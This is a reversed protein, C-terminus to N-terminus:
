WQMASAPPEKPEPRLSNFDVLEAPDSVGQESAEVALLKGDAGYVLRGRHDWDAWTAEKITTLEGRYDDQLAFTAPESSSFISSEMVLRFAHRPHAKEHWARPAGVFGLPAYRNWWARDIQWGDRHLRRYFGVEYRPDFTGPAM